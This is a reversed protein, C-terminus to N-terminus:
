PGFWRVPREIRQLGAVVLRHAQRLFRLAYLLLRAGPARM